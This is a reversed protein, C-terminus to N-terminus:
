GLGHGRRYRLARAAAARKPSREVGVADLGFANAVALMTGMGCFPDVVVRCATSALLFRCVEECAATGMARAWSMEGLAPLVDPGAQPVKLRLGRSFCQLHAYAPRGKTATGAPVRCVIKHFLCAAGAGSAGQSVLSGKDVWRGEHRVDSQFFIAVAGEHVQRTALAVTDIFWRTWTELDHPKVESGDPLSTVLAHTAPLPTAALWAVGDGEIVQRSPEHSPERAPAPAPPPSVSM